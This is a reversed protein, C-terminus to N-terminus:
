REVYGSPLVLYLLRALDIPVVKFVRGPDEEEMRLYKIAM